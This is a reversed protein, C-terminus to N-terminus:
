RPHRHSQDLLHDPQDVTPHMMRLGLPFHLPEMARQILGHAIPSFRLPQPLPLLRQFFKAAHVVLLPRMLRQPHLPRRFAIPRARPAILCLRPFPVIRLSARHPPQVGLSKEVPFAPVPEHAFRQRPPAHPDLCHSLQQQHVVACTRAPSRDGVPPSALKTRGRATPLARRDGQPSGGLGGLPSCFWFGSTYRIDQYVSYRM